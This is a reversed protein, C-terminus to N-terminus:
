SEYCKGSKIDKMRDKALKTIYECAALTIFCEAFGNEEATLLGNVYRSDFEALGDLELGKIIRIAETYSVLGTMYKKMADYMGDTAIEQAKATIANQTARNM